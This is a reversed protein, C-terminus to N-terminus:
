WARITGDGGGSFLGKRGQLFPFYVKLAIGGKVDASLGM